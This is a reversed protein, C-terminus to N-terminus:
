SRSSSSLISGLLGACAAITAAGFRLALKRNRCTGTFQARAHYAGGDRVVADEFRDTGTPHTNDVQGFVLAQVAFNRELKERRREACSACARARNNRSACAALASSWGLTAVTCSM